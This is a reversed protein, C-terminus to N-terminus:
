IDFQTSRQRLKEQEEHRKVKHLATTKERKKIEDVTPAFVYKQQLLERKEKEVDERTQQIAKKAKKGKGMIIAEKELDQLLIAFSSEKGNHVLNVTIHKGLPMTSIEEYIKLRNQLSTVPTNNIKTIIDGTTIGFDGAFSNQEIQGVRVGFSKGKRYVTILDLGNIFESLNPVLEKFAEPDVVFSDENLKAIVGNWREISQAFPAEKADKERLYFIEEQGNSRIFIIRNRLIRILQSDEVKDGIRVNNEEKTKLNSIIARNKYDDGMIIIGKLSIQLPELFKPAELEPLHVPIPSPPQPFQEELPKQKAQEFPKRYTAFLDNEYIKALEIPSVAKKIAIFPTPELLAWRIPREQSLVVLLLSLIFLGLLSSNLIWLPHRMALM